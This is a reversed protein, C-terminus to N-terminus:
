NALNEHKFFSLEKKILQCFKSHIIATETLTWIQHGYGEKNIAM